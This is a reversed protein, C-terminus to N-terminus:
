YPRPKKVYSYTPAPEFDLFPEPKHVPEPAPEEKLIYQAMAEQEAKMRMEKAKKEFKSDSSDYLEKLLFLIM